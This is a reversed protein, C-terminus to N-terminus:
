PLLDASMWVNHLINVGLKHFPEVRPPTGFHSFHEDDAREALSAEGQYVHDLLAVSLYGLVDDEGDHVVDAFAHGMHMTHPDCMAVEFHLVDEQAILFELNCVETGGFRLVVKQVPVFEFRHLCLGPLNIDESLILVELLVSRQHIPRWFHHVLVLALVDVELDVDPHEAADQESEAEGPMRELLRLGKCNNIPMIRHGIVLFSRVTYRRVHPLKDLGQQLRIWLLPRGDFLNKLNNIIQLIPILRLVGM